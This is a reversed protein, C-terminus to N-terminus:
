INIPYNIELSRDYCAGILLVKTIKTHVPQSKLMSNVEKETLNKIGCKKILQRNQFVFNFATMSISFGSEVFLKLILLWGFGRRSYNGACNM